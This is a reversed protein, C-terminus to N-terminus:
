KAQLKIAQPGSNGGSDLTLPASSFNIGSAMGSSKKGKSSAASRAEYNAMINQAESATIAAMPHRPKSQAQARLLQNYAQGTEEDLHVRGGCASCALGCFMLMLFKRM